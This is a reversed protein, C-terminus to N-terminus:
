SPPHGPAWFYAPPGEQGDSRALPRSRRKGIRAEVVEALLLLVIVILLLLKKPELEVM